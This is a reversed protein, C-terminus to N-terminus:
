GRSSPAVPAPRAYRRVLPTTPSIFVRGWFPSHSGFPPTLGVNSMTGDDSARKVMLNLVLDAPAAATQYRVQVSIAPYGAVATPQTAFGITEAPDDTARGSRSELEGGLMAEGTALGIGFGLGPLGWGLGCGCDRGGCLGLFLMAVPTLVSLRPPRPPRMCTPSRVAGCARRGQLRSQRPPTVTSPLRRCKSHHGSGRIRARTVRYFEAHAAHDSLATKIGHHPQPM